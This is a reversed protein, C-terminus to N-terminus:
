YVTHNHIIFVNRPLVSEANWIMHLIRKLTGMVAIICRTLNFLFGMRPSAHIKKLQHFTLDVSDPDSDSFAEALRVIGFDTVKIGLFFAPSSLGPFQLQLTLCSSPPSPLRDKCCVINGTPTAATSDCSDPARTTSSSPLSVFSMILLSPEWFVVRLYRILDLVSSDSGQRGM